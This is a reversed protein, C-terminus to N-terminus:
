SVYDNCPFYKYTKNLPPDMFTVSVQVNGHNLEIVDKHNKTSENFCTKSFKCSYEDKENWTVVCIEPELQIKNEEGQWAFLTPITLFYVEIPLM